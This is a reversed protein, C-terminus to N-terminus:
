LICRYLSCTQTNTQKNTKARFSAVITHNTWPIRLDKLNKSEKLIYYAQM